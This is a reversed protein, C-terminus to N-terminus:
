FTTKSLRKERQKKAWNKRQLECLHERHAAYYARQKENRKKKIRTERQKERIRERNEAYYKQSYTLEPQKAVAKFDERTPTTYDVEM